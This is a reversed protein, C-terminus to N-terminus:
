RGAAPLFCVGIVALVLVLWGLVVWPVPPRVGRLGMYDRIVATGKALALALVLANVAGGGSGEGLWWAVGTAVVLFLWIRDIQRTTM